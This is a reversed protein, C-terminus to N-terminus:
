RRFAGLEVNTVPPLPEGRGQRYRYEWLKAYLALTYIAGLVALLFGPMGDRYGGLGFYKRLFHAPPSFLIKGLPKRSREPERLLASIQLSTYDNMKGLYQGITDYTYHNLLGTLRGAEGNVRFGGHVEETVATYRGRRFLRLTYDPYWGGHMIWKGFAKVRRPVEYGDRSDPRGTVARIEEALGPTVEEDADVYLFWEGTASAFGRERQRIDGDYAHRLTRAGSREAIEVTRDTSFSDVVIIEDAWALSALCRPLNREENYCIVIVSVTGRREMM